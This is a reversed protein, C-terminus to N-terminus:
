ERCSMLVGTFIAMIVSTMVCTIFRINIPGSFCAPRESDIPNPAQRLAESSYQCNRLCCIKWGCGPQAINRVLSTIATIM